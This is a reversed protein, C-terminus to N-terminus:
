KSEWSSNVICILFIDTKQGCGMSLMNWTGKELIATHNYNIINMGLTVM